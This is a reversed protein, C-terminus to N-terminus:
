IGKKVENQKQVLARAEAVYPNNWGDGVIPGDEGLLNELSKLLFDSDAAADETVAELLDLAEAVGVSIGIKGEARLERRVLQLLAVPEALREAIEKGLM